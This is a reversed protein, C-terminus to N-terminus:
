GPQVCDVVTKRGSTSDVQGRVSSGITCDDQNGEGVLPLDEPNVFCTADIGCNLAAEVYDDGEAAAMPMAAVAVMLLSAGIVLKTAKM